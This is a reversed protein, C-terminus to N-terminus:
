RFSQLRIDILATAVIEPPVVRFITARGGIAPFYRASQPQRLRFVFRPARAKENEARSRIHVFRPCVAISNPRARSSLKPPFSPCNPADMKRAPLDVEIAFV